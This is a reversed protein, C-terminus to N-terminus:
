IELCLSTGCVWDIPSDISFKDYTTNTNRIQNILSILDIANQKLARPTARYIPFEGYYRASIREFIEFAASFYAQNEDMGKGHSLHRTFFYPTKNNHTSEILLGSALTPTTSKLLFNKLTFADIEMFYKEM